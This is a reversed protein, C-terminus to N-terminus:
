MCNTKNDGMKTKSGNRQGWQYCFEEFSNFHTVDTMGHQQQQTAWNRGVRQSGMSQPVGPKGTRWWSGSHGWVWTWQILSVMWGDQGRDGVERGTRFRGLMPIKKLSNARWMSPWLIPVKADTRGIIIWPQNGKSNVSKIEKRELLSELTKELVVTWFCWNKLAWSEKPDLEWM